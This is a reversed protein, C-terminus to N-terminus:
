ADESGLRSPPGVGGVLAQRGEERASSPEPPARTQPYSHPLRDIPHPWSPRGRPGPVVHVPPTQLAHQPTRRMLTGDRWAASGAADRTDIPTTPPAQACQVSVELSQAILATGEGVHFAGHDGALAEATGGLAIHQRHMAATNIQCGKCVGEGPSGRRLVADTPGSLAGEPCLLANVGPASGRLPLNPKSHLQRAHEAGGAPGMCSLSPLPGTLLHRPVMSQSDGPCTRPGPRMYHNTIPDVGQLRSLDAARPTTTARAEGASFSRKELACSGGTTAGAKRRGGPDAGPCPSNGPASREDREIGRGMGSMHMTLNQPDQCVNSMGHQKAPVLCSGDPQRRVLPALGGPIQAGFCDGAGMNAPVSTRAQTQQLLTRGGGPALAQSHDVAGSEPERCLSVAVGRIGEATGAGSCASRVSGELVQRRQDWMAPGPRVPEQSQTPLSRTQGNVRALQSHGLRSGIM